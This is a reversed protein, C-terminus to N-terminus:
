KIKSCRCGSQSNINLVWYESRRWAEFPLVNSKHYSNTGLLPPPPPPFHPRLKQTWPVGGRPDLCSPWVRASRSTSGRARVVPQISLDGSGHGQIFLQRSRHYPRTKRSYSHYMRSLLRALFISVVRYLVPVVLWPSVHCSGNISVRYTFFITFLLHDQRILAMPQRSYVNNRVLSRSYVIARFLPRLSDEPEVSYCKREVPRALFHLVDWYLVASTMWAFCIMVDDMCRSVLVHFLQLYNNSMLILVATRRLLCKYTCCKLRENTSTTTTTNKQKNTQKNEGRTRPNPSFTSCNM